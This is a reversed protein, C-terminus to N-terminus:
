LQEARGRPKLSTAIFYITVPPLGKRRLTNRKDAQFFARTPPAPRLCNMKWGQVQPQPQPQRGAGAEARLRGQSKHEPQRSPSGHPPPLPQVSVCHGASGPLVASQRSVRIQGLLQDYWEQITM